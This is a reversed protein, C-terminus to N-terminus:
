YSRLSLRSQACTSESSLLFVTRFISANQPVQFASVLSLERKGGNLKKLLALSCQKFYKNTTPLSFPSNPTKIYRVSFCNRLLAVPRISNCEFIGTVPMVIYQYTSNNESFANPNWILFIVSQKTRWRMPKYFCKASKSLVCPSGKTFSLWAFTRYLQLRLQEATGPSPSSRM